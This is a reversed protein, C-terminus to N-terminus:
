GAITCSCTHVLCVDFSSQNDSVPGNQLRHAQNMDRDQGVPDHFDVFNASEFAGPSIM